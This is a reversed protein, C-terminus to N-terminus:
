AELNNRARDELADVLMKRAAEPDGDQFARLMEDTISRAWDDPTVTKGSMRWCRAWIQGNSANVISTIPYANGSDGPWLQAPAPPQFQLPSM